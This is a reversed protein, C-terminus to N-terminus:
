RNVRAKNINLIAIKAREENIEITDIQNVYPAFCMASYGVASGIELLKEPKVEQLIKTIETLVDDKIIPIKDELAKKKVEELVM